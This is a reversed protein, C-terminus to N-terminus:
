MEKLQPLGSFPHKISEFTKTRHLGLCQGRM